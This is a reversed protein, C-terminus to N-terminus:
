PSILVQNGFSESLDAALAEASKEDALEVM